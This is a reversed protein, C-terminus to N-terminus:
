VGYISIFIDNKEVQKWAIKTCYKVLINLIDQRTKVALDPMRMINYTYFNMVIDYIDDYNLDYGEKLIIRIVENFFERLDEDNLSLFLAKEGFM